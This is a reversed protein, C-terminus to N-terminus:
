SLVLAPNRLLADIITHYVTNESILTISMVKSGADKSSAGCHYIKETATNYDVVIYRDHFIGCTKTFSINLNPYQRAFDNYDTQSLGRGMNDSFITIAVNQPINKLLDLTRVGIYNDIVYISTKANAYITSYAINADFSEGNLILYERRTQQDTFDQIFKSLEAKTAMNKKIEAIDETNKATQLSLQLIEKSGILSRNDIIYDKMSKFARILAKSQRTALDGKLVTMLMYIGQETFVYPLKRTGGWSSILNKSMLNEDNENNDPFSNIANSKSTLNKSRLFTDNEDVTSYSANSPLELTLNKSRLIEYYEEKTLQFRFDDDFKQINNKVQQNFTRTEYGYIGALDSDLMVKVGRVNYIIDKIYETNEAM